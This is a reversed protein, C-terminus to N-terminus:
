NYQRNTGIFQINKFDSPNSAMIYSIYHFYYEALKHYGIATCHSYNDLGFVLKGYASIDVLYCDTLTNAITRMDANVADASAGTYYNLMTSIFIKIQPNETKVKNVINTMYLIREESTTERGPVYDNRGLAIICADHGSLDDNQHLEWWTKTTEGSDGANTTERGTISALQGPYSLEPVLMEKTVGNEKYDFAGETLSDGICLIKRFTRAEQTAVYFCPNSSEPALNNVLEGIKLNWIRMNTAQANIACYAFYCTGEPVPIDITEGYSHGSFDSGGICRKWRDYFAIGVNAVSATVVARIQVANIRIYGTRKYSTASVFEGVTNVFGDVLTGLDILTDTNKFSLLEMEKALFFSLARSGFEYDTGPVITVKFDDKYPVRCCVRFFRANAPVPIDVVSGLPTSSPKAYASIFNKNTDYFAVGAADEFYATVKIVNSFLFLYDSRSYSDAPYEDGDGIAIYAGDTLVPTYEFVKGDNNEITTELTAVDEVADQANENAENILERLSPTPITDVFHITIDGSNTAQATAYLQITTVDASITVPNTLSKLYGISTGNLYIRTYQPLANNADDVTINYKGAKVDVTKTYDVSGTAIAFEFDQSNDNGNVEAELQSIDGTVEQRLQSVEGELAQKTQYVAGSTIGNSSGETPVTDMPLGGIKGCLTWSGPENYRYVSGMDSSTSSSPVIVALQGPRLARGTLDSTPTTDAEMAAVSSYVKSILLSGGELQMQNILILTDYMIGGARDPTISNLATEQRLAQARTLIDLINAM